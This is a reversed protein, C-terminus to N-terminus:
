KKRGGLLVFLGIVILLIIVGGGSGGGHKQYDYRDLKPGSFALLYNTLLGIVVIIKKM